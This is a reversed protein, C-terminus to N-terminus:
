SRRVLVRLKQLEDFIKAQNELIQKERLESELLRKEIATLQDSVAVSATQALAAFSHVLSAALFIFFSFSVFRIAKM